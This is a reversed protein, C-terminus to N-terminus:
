DFQGFLIMKLISIQTDNIIYRKMIEIKLKDGIHLLLYVMSVHQVVLCCGGYRAQLKIVIRNAKTMAYMMM